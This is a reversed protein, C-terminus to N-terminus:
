YEELRRLSSEVTEVLTDPDYGQSIMARDAFQYSRYDTNNWPSKDLEQNASEM